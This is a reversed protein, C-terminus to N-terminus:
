ITKNVFLSFLLLLVIQYVYCKIMVMIRFRNTKDFLGMAPELILLKPRIQKYIYELLTVHYWTSKGKPPLSCGGVNKLPKREGSIHCVEDKFQEIWWYCLRMMPKVKNILQAHSFTYCRGGSKLLGM